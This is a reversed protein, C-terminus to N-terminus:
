KQIMMLHLNMFARNTELENDMLELKKELQEETQYSNKNLEAMDMQYLEILTHIDDRFMVGLRGGWVGLPLSIYKVEITTLLPLVNDRILDPLRRALRPDLLKSEIISIVENNLQQTISASLLRQYYIRMDIEMVEIYGGPKCIRLCETILAQYHEFSHCLISFRSTIFDFTMDPIKKLGQLLSHSYHIWKFNRPLIPPHQQKNYFLLHSSNEEHSQHDLGIVTWKSYHSALELGWAADGCGIQLVHKEISSSLTVMEPISFLGDVALKTLEHQIIWRQREEEEKEEEEEKKNSCCCCCYDEQNTNFFSLWDQQNINVSPSDPRSHNLLSSPPTTDTSSPHQMFSSVSHRKLHRRPFYNTSDDLHSVTLLQQQSSPTLLTTQSSRRHHHPWHFRPYNPHRKKAKSWLESLLSRESSDRRQYYSTAKTSYQDDVISSCHSNSSQQSNRRESSILNNISSPRNDLTTTVISSPKSMLISSTKINNEKKWPLIVSKASEEPSKTLHSFWNILWTSSSNKKHHNSNATTYNM